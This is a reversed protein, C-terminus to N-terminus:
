GKGSYLTGEQITYLDQVVLKTQVTNRETMSGACNLRQCAPNVVHPLMGANREVHALQNCPMDRFCADAHRAIRTEAAAGQPPYRSCADAYRAVRTKAAAGQDGEDALAASAALMAVM